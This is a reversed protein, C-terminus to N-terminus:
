EGGYIDQMIEIKSLLYKKILFNERKLCYKAINTLYIM